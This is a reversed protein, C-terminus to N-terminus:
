YSIIKAAPGFGLVRNGRRRRYFVKDPAYSYALGVFNPTVDVVTGHIPNMKARQQQVYVVSGQELANITPKLYKAKVMRM